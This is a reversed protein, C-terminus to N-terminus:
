IPLRPRLINLFLEFQKGHIVMMPLDRTIRTSPTAVTQLRRSRFVRGISISCADLGFSPSTDGTFQWVHKDEELTYSNGPGFIFKTGSPLHAKKLTLYLTDGDAFHGWINMTECWGAVTCNVITGQKTTASTDGGQKNVIIGQPCFLDLITQMDSYRDADKCLHYNMMPLNLLATTQASQRLPSKKKHVFVLQGTNLFGAAPGHSRTLYHHNITHNSQIGHGPISTVTSPTQLTSEVGPASGMTPGSFANVRGEYLPFQM